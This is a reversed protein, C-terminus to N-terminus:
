MSNSLSFESKQKFMHSIPLSSSFIKDANIIVLILLCSHKGANYWVKLDKVYRMEHKFEMLFVGCWSSALSGTLAKFDCLYSANILSQQQWNNIQKNKANM